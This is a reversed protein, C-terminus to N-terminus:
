HGRGQMRPGRRHRAGRRARRPAARRPPGNAREPPQRHDQPEGPPNGDPAVAHCALHDGNLDVALVPHRRLEDLTPPQGPDASWSADIYWRNKRPALSIDYRVPWGAAIQAAWGGARKHAFRIPNSLVFLPRAGATNSLHALPKPLSVTVVGTAPDVWILGNGFPYQSDGDATLFLRSAEWEDRWEAETIGSDALNSRKRALAKGGRCVSVRGSELREEVEALELRLSQLRLQKQYRENKNAYGRTKGDRGAVRVACRREIARIARRLGSRRDLLNLKAREWQDGTTRTISGAWRSSSEATLGRKRDARGLQKPGDGLACRDALDRGALRGLHGGVVRLVADEAATVRLSTRIRAGRAPAVVFPGALVRVM